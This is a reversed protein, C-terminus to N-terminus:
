FNKATIGFSLFYSSIIAFIGSNIHAWKGATMNEKSKEQEDGILMNATTHLAVRWEQM